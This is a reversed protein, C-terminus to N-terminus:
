TARLSARMTKSKTTLKVKEMMKVQFPCLVITMLMTPSQDNKANEVADLNSNDQHLVTSHYRKSYMTWHIKLTAWLQENKKIAEVDRCLQKFYEYGENTWGDQYVPLRTGRKVHYKNVATHEFSKREEATVCTSAKVVEEKWVEHASEYVFISYAIDSISLKDLLSKGRNQKYYKTVARLRGIVITTYKDFFYLLGETDAYNPTTVKNKVWCRQESFLQENDNDYVFMKNTKQNDVAVTICSCIWRM